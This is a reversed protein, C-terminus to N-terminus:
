SKFAIVRFLIPKSQNKILKDVSNQLPNFSIKAKIRIKWYLSYLKVLDNITL